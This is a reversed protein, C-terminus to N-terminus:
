AGHNQQTAVWAKGTAITGSAIEQEGTQGCNPCSSHLHLHGTEEDQQGILRLEFHEPYQGPLTKDNGLVGHFARIAPADRKEIIIPGAVAQAENDYMQYLNTLRM